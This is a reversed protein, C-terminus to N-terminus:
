GTVTLKAVMGAAEHPICFYTYEGPTTFTYSWSQGAAVIGSDWPQAGSPLM